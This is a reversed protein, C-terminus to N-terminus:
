LSVSGLVFDPLFRAWHVGIAFAETQKVRAAVDNLGGPDFPVIIRVPKTSYDQAVAPGAFCILAAAVGLTLSRRDLM